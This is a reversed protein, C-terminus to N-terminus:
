RPSQVRAPGPSPRAFLRGSELEDVRRGFRQAPAHQVAVDVRGLLDRVGQVAEEPVLVEHCQALEGETEDGVLGLLLEQLVEDGPVGVDDPVGGLADHHGDGRSLSGVGDQAPRGPDGQPCMGVQLGDVDDAVVGCSRRRLLRSSVILCRATLVEPRAPVLDVAVVRGRGQHLNALSLWIM